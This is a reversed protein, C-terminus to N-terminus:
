TLPSSEPGELHGRDANALLLRDVWDSSEVCVRVIEDATLLRLSRYSPLWRLVRYAATCTLEDESLLALVRYVIFSEAKVGGRLSPHRLRLGNVMGTIAKDMCVKLNFYLSPGSISWRSLGRV